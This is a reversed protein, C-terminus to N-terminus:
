GQNSLIQGDKPYCPIFDDVVVEKWEGNKFIKVVYLGEANYEQTKFLKQIIGSGGQDRQLMRITSFLWKNQIEGIRMEEGADGFL